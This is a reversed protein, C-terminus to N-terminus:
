SITAGGVTNVFRRGVLQTFLDDDYHRLVKESCVLSYFHRIGNYCQKLLRTPRCFERKPCFLCKNRNKGKARVALRCKTTKLLEVYNKHENALSALFSEAPDELGDMGACLDLLVDDVPTREFAKTHQFVQGRGGRKAEEM